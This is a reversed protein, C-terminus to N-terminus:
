GGLDLRVRRLHRTPPLRRRRMLARWCRLIFGATLLGALAAL